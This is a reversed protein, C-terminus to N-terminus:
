PLGGHSAVRFTTGAEIEHPIWVLVERGYPWTSDTVDTMVFDITRRMPEGNRWVTLGADDPDAVRARVIVDSTAEQFTLEVYPVGRGGEFAYVGETDWFGDEDADLPSISPQSLSGAVAQAPERFRDAADGFDDCIDAFALMTVSTHWDTSIAGSAAREWDYEFGLRGDDGFTVRPGVGGHDLWAVGLGDFTTAACVWGNAAHDFLIPFTTADTSSPVTIPPYGPAILDRFQDARTSLYSSFFRPENGPPLERSLYARDYRVIRGRPYIFWRTDTNLDVGPAVEVTTENRIHVAIPALNTMEYAHSSSLDLSSADPFLAVAAGGEVASSSLVAEGGVLLETVRADVLEIALEGTIVYPLGVALEVGEATGSLWQGDCDSDTDGYDAEGPNRTPDRDDCDPLKGDCPWGDGDADEQADCSDAADPIDVCGALLALLAARKV